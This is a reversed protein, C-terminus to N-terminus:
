REQSACMLVHSRGARACAGCTNHGKSPIAAAMCGWPVLGALFASVALMWLFVLGFMPLRAGADGFQVRLSGPLSSGASDNMDKPLRLAMQKLREEAATAAAEAKRARKRRAALV